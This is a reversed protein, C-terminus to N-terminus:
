RKQFACCLTNLSEGIAAAGRDQNSLYVPLGMALGLKEWGEKGADDVGYTFVSRTLLQTQSYSSKDFESSIELVQCPLQSIPNETV